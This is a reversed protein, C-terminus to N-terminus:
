PSRSPQPVPPPRTPLGARTRTCDAAVALLVVIRIAVLVPLVLRVFEASGLGHFYGYVTAFVALDVACFSLWLHRSLPAMVFCAVLWVDYTPSYVKSCLLFIAVAAGAAAFADIRRVYTVLVLWALGAALALLSALNALHAGTPGHM